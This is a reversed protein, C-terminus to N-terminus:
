FEQKRDVKLKFNRTISWYSSYQLLQMNDVNKEELHVYICCATRNQETICGHMSVSVTNVLPWLLKTFAAYSANCVSCANSTLILDRSGAVSM